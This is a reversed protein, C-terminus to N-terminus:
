TVVAAAAVVAHRGVKLDRHLVNHAHLYALACAIQYVWVAIQGDNIREGSARAKEIVGNLHGQKCYRRDISALPILSGM